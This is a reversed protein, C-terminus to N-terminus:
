TAFGLASISRKLNLLGASDAVLAATLRGLSLIGISFLLGGVVAGRGVRVKSLLIRLSGLSVSLTLFDLAGFSFFSGLDLPTLCSIEEGFVEVEGKDKIELNTLAFGSCVSDVVFSDDGGFLLEGGVMM